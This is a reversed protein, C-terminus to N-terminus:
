NHTLLNITAGNPDKVFFRKVGWPEKTLEYVIEIKLEKAKEYLNDIDSVEISLFVSQNNLRDKKDYQVIAIQASPNNKSAFTIVWDMDMILELEFFDIYFSKCNTVNNSYINPVIRHIQNGNKM